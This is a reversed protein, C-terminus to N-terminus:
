KAFEACRSSRKRFCRGNFADDRLSMRDHLPLPYQIKEHFVKRFTLFIKRLYFFDGFIQSGAAKKVAPAIKRIEGAIQGRLRGFRLIGDNEPAYPPIGTIPNEKKERSFM